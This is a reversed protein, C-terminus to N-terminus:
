DLALASSGLDAADFGLAALGEVAVPNDDAWEKAVAVTVSAPVPGPPLAISSGTSTPQTSPPETSTPSSGVPEPVDAVLWEARELTRAGSPGVLVVAPAAGSESAAFVVIPRDPDRPVDEVDLQLVEDLGVETGPDAPLFAELLALWAACASGTPCGRIEPRGDGDHDFDDAGAGGTLLAWLGPWEASAGEDLASDDSVGEDLAADGGTAPEVALGFQLGEVVVGVGLVRPAAPRGDTGLPDLLDDLPTWRGAWVDVDGEGLAVTLERPALEFPQPAPVEFGLEVLEAVVVELVLAHGPRGDSAVIARRGDGPLTSSTTSASGAGTIATAEAETTTSTLQDAIEPSTALNPQSCAAVLVSTAVLLSSALPRRPTTM